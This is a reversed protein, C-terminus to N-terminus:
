STTASKGTRSISLQRVTSLAFSELSDRALSRLVIAPEHVKGMAEVLREVEEVALSRSPSVYEQHEAYAAMLDSLTVSDLEALDSDSAFFPTPTEATVTDPDYFARWVIQRDVLRAHLLPDIDIVKEAAWERAKCLAFFQRQAEVRCADIERETLARVAIRVDPRGPFELTRFARKPGLIMARIKSDNFAAM